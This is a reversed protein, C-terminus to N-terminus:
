NNFIFIFNIKANRRAIDNSAISSSGSKLSSWFKEDTASSGLHLFGEHKTIDSIATATMANTIKITARETPRVVLLSGTSRSTM